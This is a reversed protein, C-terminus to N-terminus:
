ALVAERSRLVVNTETLRTTSELTSIGAVREVIGTDVGGVDLHRHIGEVLDRNASKEVNHRMNRRPASARTCYATNDVSRLPKGRCHEIIM